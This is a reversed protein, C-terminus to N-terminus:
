AGNVSLFQGVIRRGFVFFGEVTAPFTEKQKSAWTPAPGLVTLM